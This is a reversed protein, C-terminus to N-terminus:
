GLRKEIFGLLEIPSIKEKYNYDVKEDRKIKECMEKTIDGANKIQFIYEPNYFPAEHILPNNTVIKKDLAIVESMRQTYGTGGKQMIELECKAHLTRQLNEEYPIFADSYQIKDKHIQEESKVGVLCIDTTLGYEWFKEFCLILEKYRNKSQGLFYIDYIPMDKLKGRYSSFVLPHYTFGYKKCDEQDFSLVLDFDRRISNIDLKKVGTGYFAFLDCLFLVYKANPYHQKLYPLLGEHSLLWGRSFVFVGNNKKIKKSNIYFKLWYDEPILKKLIKYIIKKLLGTHECHVFDYLRRNFGKLYSLPHDIYQVNDLSIIDSFSQKYLDWDSWFIVYERRM